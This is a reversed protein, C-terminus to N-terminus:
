WSPWVKCRLGGQCVGKIRLIFGIQDSFLGALRSVILMKIEHVNIKEGNLLAGIIAIIKDRMVTKDQDSKGALSLM